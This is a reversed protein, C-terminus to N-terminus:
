RMQQFENPLRFEELGDDIRTGGGGGGGRPTTYGDGRPIPKPSPTPKPFDKILIKEADYTFAVQSQGANFTSTNARIWNKNKDQYEITITGKSSSDVDLRFKGGRKSGEGVQAPTVVLKTIPNTDIPDDDVPDSTDDSSTDENNAAPVYTADGKIKKIEEKIDVSDDIVMSTYTEDQLNRIPLKINTIDCSLKLINKLLRDVDLFIDDANPNPKGYNIKDTPDFYKGETYYKVAEKLQNVIRRIFDDFSDLKFETLISKVYDNGFKNVFRRVIDEVKITDIFDDILYIVDDRFKKNKLFGDYRKFLEAEVVGETDTVPVLRMETRSPSIEHIWLKETNHRGVRNNLLQYQVKFLGQEYGAERIVKEVDIFYEVGGDKGNDKILFYETINQASLPIHRTLQGSDGQPLQNDSADFISFEIIDEKGRGFYSEMKGREIIARDKDLVRFGTRTDINKFDEAAM